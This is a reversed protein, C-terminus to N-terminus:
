GEAAQRRLEDRYTEIDQPELGMRAREENRKELMAYLDAREVEGRWTATAEPDWELFGANRGPNMWALFVMLVAFLVVCSLGMVWLSIAPVIM